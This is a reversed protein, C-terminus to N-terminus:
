AFFRENWRLLRSRWPPGKKGGMDPPPFVTMLLEGYELGAVLDKPHYEFHWWEATKEESQTYFKSRSKHIRSFGYDKFLQTLNFYYGTVKVIEPPTRKKFSRRTDLVDLTRYECKYVRGDKEVVADTGRAWVLFRPTTPYTLKDGPDYQIVYQQQAPDANPSLGALRWLDIALGVYHFSTASSGPNMPSTFPRITEKSVLSSGLAQTVDVVSRLPQAADERMVLIDGKQGKRTGFLVTQRTKYSDVEKLKMPPIYKDTVLSGEILEVYAGKKKSEFIPKLKKRDVGIDASTAAVIGVDQNSLPGLYIPHELTSRNGFDVFVISGVKPVEANSGRSEFIPYLSIIEHNLREEDSWTSEDLNREVDSPIPLSAHIEPIRARFRIISEGSFGSGFLKEFVGGEQTEKEIRLVVAKFSGATNLIDNSKTKKIAGALTSIPSSLQSYAGAGPQSSDSTGVPNLKGFTYDKIAKVKAM